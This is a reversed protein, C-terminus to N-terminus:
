GIGLKKMGEAVMEDVEDYAAAMGRVSEATAAVSGQALAAAAVGADEVPKLAVGIFSCLVGFASGECTVHGAAQTAQAASHGLEELHSAHRRMADTDVHFEDGM